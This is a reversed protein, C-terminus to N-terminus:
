MIFREVQALIGETDIQCIKKQQSQTAHEVIMDPIGISGFFKVGM